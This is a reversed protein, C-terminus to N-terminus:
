GGAAGKREITIASAAAIATGTRMHWGVHVPQDVVAVLAGCDRCAGVVVPEPPRGFFAMMLHGRAVFGDTQPRFPDSTVLDSM